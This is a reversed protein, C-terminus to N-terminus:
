GRLEIRDQTSRAKGLAADADADVM